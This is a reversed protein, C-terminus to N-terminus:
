ILHITELIMYTSEVLIKNMGLVDSRFGNYRARGKHVSRGSAGEFTSRLNCSSITILITVNM